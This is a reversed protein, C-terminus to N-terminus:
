EGTYNQGESNKRLTAQEVAFSERGQPCAIRFAKKRQKERNISSILSDKIFPV